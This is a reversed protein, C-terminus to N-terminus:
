NFISIYNLAVIISHPLSCDIQNIFRSFSMIQVFYQFNQFPTFSNNFKYNFVNNEQEKINLKKNLERIKEELIKKETILKKIVEANNKKLENNKPEKKNMFYQQKM